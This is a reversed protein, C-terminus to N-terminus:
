FDIIEELIKYYKLEKLKERVNRKLKRLYYNDSSTKERGNLKKNIAVRTKEDILRPPVTRFKEILERKKNSPNYSLNKQNRQEDEIISNLSTIWRMVKIKDGKLYTRNNLWEKFEIIQKLFYDDETASKNTEPIKTPKNKILNAISEKLLHEEMEPPIKDSPESSPPLKEIKKELKDKKEGESLWKDITM